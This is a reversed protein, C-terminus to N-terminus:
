SNRKARKPKLQAIPQALMKAELKRIAENGLEPDFNLYHADLISAVDKLGHGTSTAIQPVTCGALAMRTVATGRLDHFTVGRIGAALCVKRWANRFGNENWPKRRSSALITVPQVSATEGEEAYGARAADLAARLPFGALIRVAARTKKQKLRIHTGDYASWTLRLLDAQRQGTWLALLFALKMDDGAAQMFSAEQEESWVKDRRSGNYLKGARICPNARVLGRDFGWAIIRALVRFASDAQRRSRLGRRDRWELFMGRAGHEGNASLPLDAFAAEISKIQYKYDKKTADALGLFDPSQVYRDILSSLDNQPQDKLRRLAAKYNDDFEPTGYEGLIRSGGKGLYYYTEKKGSALRKTNKNLGKYRM